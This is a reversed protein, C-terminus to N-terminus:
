RSAATLSNRTARMGSIKLHPPLESITDLVFYLAEAAIM